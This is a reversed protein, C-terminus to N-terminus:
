HQWCLQKASEIVEKLSKHQTIAAHIFGVAVCKLHDKFSLEKYVSRQPYSKANTRKLSFEQQVCRWWKKLPKKKLIKLFCFTDTYASPPDEGKVKGYENVQTKKTLPLGTVNVFGLEDRAYIMNLYDTSLIHEKVEKMSKIKAKKEEKKKM